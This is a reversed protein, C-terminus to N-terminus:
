IEHWTAEEKQLQASIEEQEEICLTIDDHLADLDELLKRHHERFDAVDVPPIPDPIYDYNVPSAHPRVLLSERSVGAASAIDGLRQYVTWSSLGFKEAIQKPTYGAEFLQVYAEEMKLTREDPGRM